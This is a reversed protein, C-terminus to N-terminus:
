VVDSNMSLEVLRTVVYLSDDCKIYITFLLELDFSIMPLTFFRM